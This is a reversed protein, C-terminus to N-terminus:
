AHGFIQAMSARLWANAGDKAYKRHWHQKLDFGPVEVPPEV